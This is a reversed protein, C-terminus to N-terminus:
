RAHLVCLPVGLFDLIFIAICAIVALDVDDLFDAVSPSSASSEGGGGKHPASRASCRMRWVRVRRARAGARAREKETEGKCEGARENEMEAWGEKMKERETEADRQRQAIGHRGRWTGKEAHRGRARERRSGVAM